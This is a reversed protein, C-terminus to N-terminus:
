RELFREAAFAVARLIAERRRLADEARKRETVDRATAYILDENVTPVAKWELWVQAGDKRLYRNEFFATRTGRSLGELEGMTAARDEPHVFEVFPKALLEESSYGLTGVFAPNVRKFYGDLGAVGLLDLSFEALRDREEEARRRERRAEAEQLGRELTACLRALNGKMVYDHAGSRMAEVAAEEGVKGSVIVLPVESGAARLMELAETASFRTMQWDSLVVDWPGGEALARRMEEPTDVLKHIPEYGGRELGRLLLLADDESDEVILVRLPVRPSVNSSDRGPDAKM